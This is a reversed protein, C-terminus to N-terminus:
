AIEGRDQMSDTWWDFGTSWTDSHGAPVWSGWPNDDAQNAVQEVVDDIQKQLDDMIVRLQDANMSRDIQVGSARNERYRFYNFAAYKRLAFALAWECCLLYFSVHLRSASFTLSAGVTPDVVSSANSSISNSTIYWNRNYAQEMKDFGNKVIDTLQDDTLSQATYSIYYTSTPATTTFRITGFEYSDVTYSGSSYETGTNDYVTIGSSSIPRQATYFVTNSGDPLGELPERVVARENWLMSRKLEAIATTLTYAL